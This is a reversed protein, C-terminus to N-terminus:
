GPRGKKAPRVNRKLSTNSQRRLLRREVSQESLDKTKLLDAGRGQAALPENCRAEPADLHQFAAAALIPQGV